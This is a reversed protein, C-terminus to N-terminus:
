RKWSVEERKSRVDGVESMESKQFRLFPRNRM